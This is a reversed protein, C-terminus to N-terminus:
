DIRDIDSKGLGSKDNLAKSVEGTEEQYYNQSGTNNVNERFRRLKEYPDMTNEPDIPMVM